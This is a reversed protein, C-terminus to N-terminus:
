RTIVWLVFFVLVGVVIIGLWISGESSSKSQSQSVKPPTPIGHDSCWTDYQSKLQEKEQRAKKEARRKEDAALMAGFILGDDDM